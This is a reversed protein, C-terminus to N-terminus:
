PGPADVLKLRVRAHDRVFRIEVPTADADEGFFLDMKGRWYRGGEEKLGRVALYRVPIETQGIRRVERGVSRIEVPYIKGDSWIRMRRSTAPPDQRLLLIGSSIDIVDAEELDAQKRKSKGRFLYSSWVRVTRRTVPDIEAGYLWFEGERSKPSTIHLETQLRGAGNTFTTLSGDGRGPIFLSALNGIFGGLDWDYRLVEHRPAILGAAPEGAATPGPGVLLLGLLLGAAVSLPAM